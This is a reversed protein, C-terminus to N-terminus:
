SDRPSPSTYLPWTREAESPGAPAAIAVAPEEAEENIIECEFPMIVKQEFDSDKVLRMDRIKAKARFLGKHAEICWLACLCSSSKPGGGMSERRRKDM